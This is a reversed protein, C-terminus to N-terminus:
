NCIYSYMVLKNCYGGRCHTSDNTWSGDSQCIRTEGGIVEYGSNCAYSCTDEYSPVGDDGLTCNIEGHNPQTLNACYVVYLLWLASYKALAYVKYDAHVYSM